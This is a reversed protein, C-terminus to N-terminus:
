NENRINVILNLMWEAESTIAFSNNVVLKIM